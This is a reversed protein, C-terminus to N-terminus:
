CSAKEMSASGSVSITIVRGTDNVGCVKLTNATAPLVRYGTGEFTIGSSGIDTKIVIGSSPPSFKKLQEGADDGSAIVVEWEHVDTIKKVTVQVRRNIAENRAYRFAGIVLEANSSVKSNEISTNMSPIAYGFLIGAIAVTVILELLTFGRSKKM